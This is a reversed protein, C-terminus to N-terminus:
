KQWDIWGVPWASAGDNVWKGTEPDLYQFHRTSTKYRYKRAWRGPYYIYRVTQDRSRIDIYKSDHRLMRGESDFYYWHPTGHIWLVKYADTTVSGRPLGDRTIHGYYWNGKYKFLGTQLKGRHYIVKEGHEWQIGDPQKTRAYCEMCGIVEVGMLAVFAIIFFVRFIKKM